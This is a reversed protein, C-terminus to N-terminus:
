FNYQIIHLFKDMSFLLILLHTTGSVRISTRKLLKAPVRSTKSRSKAEM